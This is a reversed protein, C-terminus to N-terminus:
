DHGPGTYICEKGLGIWNKGYEIKIRICASMGLYYYYKVKFFDDLMSDKICKDRIGMPM